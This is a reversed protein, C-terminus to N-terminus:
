SWADVGLPASIVHVLTLSKTNSIAETVQVSAQLTNHTSGSAKNMVGLSVVSRSVLLAIIREHVPVHTPEITLLPQRKDGDVESDEDHNRNSAYM